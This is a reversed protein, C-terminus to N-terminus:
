IVLIVYHMSGYPKKMVRKKTNDYDTLKILNSRQSSVNFYYAKVLTLCYRCMYHLYELQLINAFCQIMFYRDAKKKHFSFM